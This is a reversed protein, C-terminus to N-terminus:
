GSYILLAGSYIQLWLVFTCVSWVIKLCLKMTLKEVTCCHPPHRPMAKQVEHVTYTTHTNHTHQTHTHTYRPWILTISQLCFNNICLKNCSRQDRCYSCQVFLQREISAAPWLPNLGIILWSEDFDHPGQRSAGGGWDIRGLFPQLTGKRRCIFWLTPYQETFDIFIIIM